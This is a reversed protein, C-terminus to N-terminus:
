CNVCVNLFCIIMMGKEPVYACYFETLGMNDPITFLAADGVGPCEGLNQEADELRIKVGEFNMVGDNRGFICLKGDESLAGSDGTFFWRQADNETGAAGSIAGTRARVAGSEGYLLVNGNADVIEVNATELVIGAFDPQGGLIDANGAAILGTESSGYNIYIDRCIDRRVLEALRQPLRAGGTTVAEITRFFDPNERALKAWVTLQAISAVLHRIGLAKFHSATSPHINGFVLTGGTWLITLM